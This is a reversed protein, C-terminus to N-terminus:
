IRETGKAQSILSKKVCLACLGELGEADRQFVPVRWLIVFVFSTKYSKKLKSYFLSEKLIEIKAKSM